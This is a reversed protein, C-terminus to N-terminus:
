FYAIWTDGRHSEARAVSNGHCVFHSTKVKRLHTDFCHCYFLHRTTTFATLKAWSVFHLDQGLSRSMLMVLLLFLRGTKTKLRFANREDRIGAIQCKRNQRCPPLAIQIRSDSGKTIKQSNLLCNCKYTAKNQNCSIEIIVIPLSIDVALTDSWQFCRVRTTDM